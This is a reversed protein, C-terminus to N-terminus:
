HMIIIVTKLLQSAAHSRLNAAGCHECGRVAKQANKVVDSWWDKSPVQWSIKAEGCHGAFPSVHCASFHDMLLVQVCGQSQSSAFVEM